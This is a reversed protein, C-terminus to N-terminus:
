GNPPASEDDGGWRPTIRVERRIRYVTVQYGRDDATSVYLGGAGVVADAVEVGEPLSLTLVPAGGGSFVAMSGGGDGAGLRAVVLGARDVGVLRLYRTYSECELAFRGKCTGDLTFVSLDRTFPTPSRPQNAGLGPPNQEPQGAVVYLLGDPGVALSEVDLQIPLSADVEVQGHRTLTHIALDRADADPGPLHRVFHVLHDQLLAYGAVVVGGRPTADLDLLYGAELEDGATSLDRRWVLEGSAGVAIVAGDWGALLFITPGATMRMGDASGKWRWAGESLDVDTIYPPRPGTAAPIDGASGLPHDAGSAPGAIAPQPRFGTGWALAPQLLGYAASRDAGTAGPSGGDPVPIVLVLRGQRDFLQTRYHVSDVVLVNGAEDVAFAQPGRPRGDIGMTRGFEGEEPGWGGTVVVEPEASWVREARFAALSGSFLLALVLLGVGLPSRLKLTLM